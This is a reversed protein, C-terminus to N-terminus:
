EGQVELPKSRSRSKSDKQCIKCVRMPIHTSSKLLYVNDGSLPHGNKCHTKLQCNHRGKRCKDATNESNTGLWLHDPNVCLPNDCTHCVQLSDPIPGRSLMWMVRAAVHNKGDYFFRGRGRRDLCSVWEWCGDALIVHSMLRAMDKSDSRKRKM